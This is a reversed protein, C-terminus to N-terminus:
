DALVADIQGMAERMGEIMGMEILQELQELSAFFSTTTMRTGADTTRLSFAMRTSPLEADPTGNEDAFWDVIEFTDPAHVATWEWCGYHQDGEPGTMRYISRGGVEVDHRLFAAPYTPPGWFRELQRPDTYADWVRLQSAAFDATVTITLQDLDKEVSTIPM